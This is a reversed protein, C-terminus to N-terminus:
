FFVFFLFDHYNNSPILHKKKDMVVQVKLKNPFSHTFQFLILYVDPSVQQTIKECLDEDPESFPAEEKITEESPEELIGGVSISSTTSTKRSSSGASIGSDTSEKRTFHKGVLDIDYQLM